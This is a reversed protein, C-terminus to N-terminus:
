PVSAPGERVSVEYTGEGAADGAGRVRLVAKANAPVAGILKEAVSKGPLESRAVPKGDVLLEISLDIDSPTVTIDLTRAAVDAAIAFCDVDGSTWGGDVRTRETPFAMAREPTDNPEVEADPEIPKATVKLQYATEPNSREGGVTLYHFPPAGSPVVPVVGRVILAAGRPAKRLLLPQGVGDALELALAVGEVAAIEIDIANRSSLTEVSLKWVDVDGAWGIFGTVADGPILDNATGRDDNPEREAGAAPPAFAAAVEYSVPVGPKPPPPAAKKGKGKSKKPPAPAKRKVIAYYRGPTVGFNPVGERARVAGRDSRAIVTGSADELDFTLDADVATTTVTLAGVETVDIRYYDADADLDLTGRASAGLGLPTAVDVSDNPEVEDTAGGQAGGDPLTPSTIVEVAAADGTRQQRKKKGGCSATAGGVLTAALGLVLLRTRM